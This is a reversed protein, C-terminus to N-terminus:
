FGQKIGSEFNVLKTKDDGVRRNLPIFVPSEYKNSM